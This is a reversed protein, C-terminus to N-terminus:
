KDIEHRQSYKNKEENLQTKLENESSNLLKGIEPRKTNNIASFLRLEIILQQKTTNM